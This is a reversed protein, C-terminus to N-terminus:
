RRREHSHGEQWRRPDVCRGSRPIYPIWILSENALDALNHGKNLETLVFLPVNIRTAIDEGREYPWSSTNSRSGVRAHCVPRFCQDLYREWRAAWALTRTASRARGTTSHAEVHVFLLTLLLLKRM